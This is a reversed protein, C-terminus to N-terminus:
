ATDLFKAWRNRDGGGQCVAIKVLRSKIPASEQLSVNSWWVNGQPAFRFYLRVEGRVAELPGLFRNEGIVWDGDKRYSFIGDNFTDAFIGQVLHRNVDEIGAIRFRVRLRYTKGAKLQVPHVAYGFCERRGNGTAALCPGGSPDAAWRFHP